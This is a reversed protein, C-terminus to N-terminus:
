TLSPHRTQSDAAPVPSVTGRPELSTVRLRAAFKPAHRRVGALAAEAEDLTDFRELPVVSSQSLVAFGRAGSLPTDAGGSPRGELLHQALLWSDARVRSARRDFRPARSRLAPQKDVFVPTPAPERRRLLLAVLAAQGVSVAVAATFWVGEALALLAVAHALLVVLLWIRFGIDPSIPRSGM